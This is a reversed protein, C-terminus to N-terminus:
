SVAVPPSEALMQGSADLARVAVMPASTGVAVRTEFGHKAFAGVPKLSSADAGALVQWRAVDTAGNWSIYVALHTADLHQAVVSPKTTPTATWPYRFERYSGDDAPLSADFLLKGSPAFESFFPQAGFGLFVNGDPLTQFSGESQASTNGTRHYQRVVRARMPKSSLALVLGRSSPAKQPPGAEDDFLSIDGNPLMSADHQFWFRAGPGLKFDSANGGLTWDIQGGHPDVDYIASTDRASILMNGDSLPDISNIHYADFVPSSAPTVYSDALPIHGYAHWEWTVLGTRVDVEQVIADLLPSMTGPATGPLHVLIPSNVTFIADGAPTLRFEHIDMQYGNGAHVTSITRYSRDAIVGEGLGFAAITVPGQWWTLVSRGRYHQIMLNAAVDPPALQKFWVLQGNPGIIMPGGPGVPTITIPVPGPHVIPSPLPTLFIDGPLSPAKKLVSMKPPTLGPQSVFSQLKSPQTQPLNLIGPVTGATAISFATHVPARGRLRITVSVHEGQTFPASPLFSAGQGGSYDHLQGSHAGSTSGTATVSAIERPAIGFVSIQTQPSADPTGNAPSIIPASPQPAAAAPTATVLAAILGLALPGARHTIGRGQAKVM